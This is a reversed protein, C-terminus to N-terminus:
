AWKGALFARFASTLFERHLGGEVLVGVVLILAARRPHGRGEVLASVFFPVLSLGAVAGFTEVRADFCGGVTFGNGCGCDMVSGRRSMAVMGMVLTFWGCGALHVTLRLTLPLKSALVCSVYCWQRLSGCRSADKCRVAVVM